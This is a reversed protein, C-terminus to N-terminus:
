ALRAYNQLIARASASIDSPSVLVGGATITSETGMNEGFRRHYYTLAIQM